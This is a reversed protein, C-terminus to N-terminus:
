RSDESLRRAAFLGFSSLANYATTLAVTDPLHQNASDQIIATVEYWAALLARMADDNLTDIGYSDRLCDRAMALAQDTQAVASDSNTQHKLTAEHFATVTEIMADITIPEKSGM